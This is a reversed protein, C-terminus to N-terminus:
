RYEFHVCWSLKSNNRLIAIGKVGQSELEANKEQIKEMSLHYKEDGSEREVIKVEM